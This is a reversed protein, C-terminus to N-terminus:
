EHEDTSRSDILVARAPAADLGPLNLPLCLLTYYGPDVHGLRLGEIIAVNRDFLLNHTDHHPQNREIGLYDIGVAAINYSALYEAASQELFIFHYDFSATTVRLSNRTKCLLRMGSTIPVRQLDDKSVSQTCSTFDVVLCPGCLQELMIADITSGQQQFHAPADVHTGTHSTICLRTERVHHESWVKLAELEVLKKDKYETMRDTIPWSIDIIKM